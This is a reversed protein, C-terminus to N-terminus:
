EEKLFEKYYEQAKKVARDAVELIKLERKTLKAYKGFYEKVKAVDGEYIALGGAIRYWIAARLDNKAREFERAKAVADKISVDIKRPDLFMTDKLAEYVELDDVCLRELETISRGKEGVEEKKSEKKRGFLRGLVGLACGGKLFLM